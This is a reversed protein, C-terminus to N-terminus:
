NGGPMAAFNVLQQKALDAACKLDFLRQDELRYPLKKQREFKCLFLSGDAVKKGIEDCYTQINRGVLKNRETM